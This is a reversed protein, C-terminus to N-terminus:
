FEKENLLNVSEVQQTFCLHKPNNASIKHPFRVAPSNKVLTTDKVLLLMKKHTLYCNICVASTGNKVGCSILLVAEM